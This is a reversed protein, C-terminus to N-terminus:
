YYFVVYSIVQSRQPTAPKVEAPETASEKGSERTFNHPTKFKKSRDQGKINATVYLPCAIHLVCTVCIHEIFLYFRTRKRKLVHNKKNIRINSAELANM